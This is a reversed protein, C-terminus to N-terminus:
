RRAPKRAPKRPRESERSEDELAPRAVWKLIDMATLIGAFRGGRTVILRHIGLKFMHKAAEALTSSEDVSVVRRTAIDLATADEDTAVDLRRLPALDSGYYDGEASGRKSGARLLDTTSVVGLVTGDQDVVPAGSIGRDLLLKSLERVTTDPAVTVVVQTMVDAVIARPM